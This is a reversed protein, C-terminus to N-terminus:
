KNITYFYEKVKNSPEFKVVTKSELNKLRGDNIDFSIRPAHRLLYFRGWDPLMISGRTRLERSIVRVFAYYVMEISEENMYNCLESVRRFLEARRIENKSNVKSKGEKSM